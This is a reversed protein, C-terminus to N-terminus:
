GPAEESGSDEEEETTVQDNGREEGRLGGEDEKAEFVGSHVATRRCRRSCANIDLCLFVDTELVVWSSSSTVPPNCSQDSLHREAPTLKM